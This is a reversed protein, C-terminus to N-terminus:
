IEISGNIKNFPDFKNIRDYYLRGDLHDIEHQLVIAELGKATINVEKNKKADFAKVVIRHHRYVYGQHTDDVSLCGEGNSLYTLKMSQSIIKPNVLLHEVCEKEDIPYYVVIMKKNVGIQPAALGVGERVNPHDKKYEEDQSLKLYTLMDFILSKDEESLPLIVDECKKRLSPNNDKVIKFKRMAVINYCM